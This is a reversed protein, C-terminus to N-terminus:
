DVASQVSTRESANGQDADEVVGRANGSYLLIDELYPCNMLALLLRRIQCVVLFDREKSAIEDM